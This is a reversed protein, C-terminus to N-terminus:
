KLIRKSPNVLDYGALQLTEGLQRIMDPTDTGKQVNKMIEDTIGWHNIDAFGSPNKLAKTAIKTVNDRLSESASSALKGILQATPQGIAQVGGSMMANDLAFKTTRDNYAQRGEPTSVEAVQKKWDSSLKNGAGSVISRILNTINDM